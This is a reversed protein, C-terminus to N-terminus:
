SNHKNSKRARWMVEAYYEQEEILDQQNQADLLEKQVEIVHVARDEVTRSIAELAERDPTVPRLGEQELESIMETWVEGLQLWFYLKWKVDLGIKNM